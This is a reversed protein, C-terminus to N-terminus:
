LRVKGERVLERINSATIKGVERGDLNVATEADETGNKVAQYVIAGLAVASLGIGIGTPSTVAAAAGSFELFSTSGRAANVKAINSLEIRGLEELYKKRIQFELTAQAIVQISSSIFNSAYDAFIDSFERNGSSLERVIGSISSVVGSALSRTIAAQTNMREVISDYQVALDGAQSSIESLADSIPQFPIGFSGASTSDSEINPPRRNLSDIYADYTQRLQNYASNAASIDSLANKNRESVRDLADQEKQKLEVYRALESILNSGASTLARVGSSQQQTDGFVEPTQKSLQRLRRRELEYADLISQISALSASLVGHLPFAGTAFRSEQTIDPPLDRGPQIRPATAPASGQAGTREQYIQRLTDRLRTAVGLQTELGRIDVGSNVRQRPSLEQANELERELRVVEDVAQNLSRRLSELPANRFGGGEQGLNLGKSVESMANAFESAAITATELRVFFYGIATTTLTIIGLAAGLSIQLASIAATAASIGAVSNRFAANVGILSARWVSVAKIGNAIAIQQLQIAASVTIVSKRLLAYAGVASGLILVFNRVGSTDSFIALAFRMEKVLSTIAPLVVQGIARAADRLEKNLLATQASFTDLNLTINLDLQRGLRSYFERVTLGASEIADNLDKWSTINSGLVKNSEAIFNPLVEIISKIDDGEIKNAAYSQTLQSMLRQTEASSRGLQTTAQSFGRIVSIADEAEAGGARLAVFVKTFASVDLSVLDRSANRIRGFLGEVDDTFKSLTQRTTETDSSIRVISRSVDQIANIATFFSIGAFAAKLNDSFARARQERRQLSANERREVETIREQTSNSIAKDVNEVVQQLRKLEREFGRIGRIAPDNDVRFTTTPM